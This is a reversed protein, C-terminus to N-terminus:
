HHFISFLAGLLDGIIELSGAMAALQLVLGSGFGVLGGILMADFAMSGIVMGIITTIGLWITTAIM